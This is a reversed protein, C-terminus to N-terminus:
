RILGICIRDFNSNLIFNQMEYSSELAMCIDNKIVEAMKTDEFDPGFYFPLM